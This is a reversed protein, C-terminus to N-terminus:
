TISSGPVMKSTTFLASNLGAIFVIQVRLTAADREIDATSTYIEYDSSVSDSLLDLIDMPLMLRGEREELFDYIILRQVLSLEGDANERRTRRQPPGVDISKGPLM